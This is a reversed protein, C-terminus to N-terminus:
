YRVVWLFYPSMKMVRNYEAHRDKSEIADLVIEVDEFYTSMLRRIERSWVRFKTRDSSLKEIREM